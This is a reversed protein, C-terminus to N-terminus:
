ARAEDLGFHAAALEHSHDLTEGVIGANRGSAGYGATEQELIVVDIAPELEKLFLATWLGTFGAGIIAVDAKRDGSLPTAERAPRTALWYCSAEVPARAAGPARGDSGTRATSRGSRIRWPRSSATSSRM